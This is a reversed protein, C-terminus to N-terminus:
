DKGHSAEGEPLTVCFGHLTCKRGVRDEIVVMGIAKAIRLMCNLGCGGDLWVRTNGDEDARKNLGYFEKEDLQSIERPAQRFLWDGFVTGIMDYGGGNCSYRKDGDWLTCINYGETERARSVSWKLRLYKTNM